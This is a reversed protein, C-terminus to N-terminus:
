WSVVGDLFSTHFRVNGAINRALLSSAIQLGEDEAKVLMTVAGRESGIGLAITKKGLWSFQSFGKAEVVHDIVQTGIRQRFVLDIGKRQDKGYGFSRAILKFGRGNHGFEEVAKMVGSVEAYFKEMNEAYKKANQIQSWIFKKQSKSLKAGKGM